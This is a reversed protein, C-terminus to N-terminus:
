RACVSSPVRTLSIRVARASESANSRETVRAGLVVAGVLVIDCDLVVRQCRHNSSGARGSGRREVFVQVDLIDDIFVIARTLVVPAAEVILQPNLSM